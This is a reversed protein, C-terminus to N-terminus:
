PDYPLDISDTHGNWQVTFHWCGVAEVNVISPYIEGPGSDASQTVTVVPTAQGIPHGTITLDSGERPQRVVWLIKNSPNQPDGARLPYAFLFATVQGGQSTAQVLDAPAGANSAWPQSAGSYLSTSGCGGDVGAAGIPVTEVASATTPATAPEIDTTERMSLIWGLGVVSIVAAAALVWSRSRRVRPPDIVAVTTESRPGAVIENVTFRPSRRDLASAVARVREIVDTSM